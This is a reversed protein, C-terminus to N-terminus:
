QKTESSKLPYFSPVKQLLNKERLTIELNDPANRNSPDLEIITRFCTESIDYREIHFAALGFCYLAEINNPYLKLINLCIKCAEPFNGIERFKNALQINETIDMM